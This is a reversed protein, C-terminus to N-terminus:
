RKQRRIMERKTQKLLARNSRVGRVEIVDLVEQFFLNARAYQERVWDPVWTMLLPDVLMELLALDWAGDFKAYLDRVGLFRDESPAAAM